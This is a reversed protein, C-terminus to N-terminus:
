YRTSIEPIVYDIKRHMVTVYFYQNIAVATNIHLLEYVAPEKIDKGWKSHDAKISKGLENYHFIPWHEQM